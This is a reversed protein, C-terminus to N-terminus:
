PSLSSPGAINRGTKASIGEQLRTGWEYFTVEEPDVVGVEPVSIYVAAM